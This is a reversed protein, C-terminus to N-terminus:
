VKQDGRLGSGGNGGSFDPVGMEWGGTESTAEWHDKTFRHQFSDLDREMMLTLVWTEAGFMLVAQVVAKYFIGSVKPYAGERILIRSLKGWSKGSKGLKGVVELWDDDGATLVQGLYRFTTVNELPEGYAEFARESSERTEAEALRRREREVGRTCQATAPHRGNLARRPVLM